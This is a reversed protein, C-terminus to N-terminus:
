RIGKKLAALATTPDQIIWDMTLLAAQYQMGRKEVLEKISMDHTHYDTEIDKELWTELSPRLESHISFLNEALIASAEEDFGKDILKDYIQKETM